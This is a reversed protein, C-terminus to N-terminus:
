IYTAAAGDSWIPVIQGSGWMRWWWLRQRACFLSVEASSTAGVDSLGATIKQEQAEHGNGGRGAWIGGSGSGASGLGHWMRWWWLRHRACFLSVEASISAGM